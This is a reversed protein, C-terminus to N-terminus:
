MWGVANLNVPGLKRIDKRMVLVDVTHYSYHLVFKPMSVLDVSVQGSSPIM